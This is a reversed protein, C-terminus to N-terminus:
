EFKRELFHLGVRGGGKSEKIEVIDDVTDFLTFGNKEFVRVSAKNVTFALGYVRKANMRPVAWEDIITRLAVSM